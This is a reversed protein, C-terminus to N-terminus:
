ALGLKYHILQRRSLPAPFLFQIEAETFALAGRDSEGSAIAAENRGGTYLPLAATLKATLTDTTRSESDKTRDFGGAATLAFGSAGRAKKLM